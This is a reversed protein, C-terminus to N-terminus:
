NEQFHFFTLQAEILQNCTQLSSNGSMFISGSYKMLPGTGGIGQYILAM